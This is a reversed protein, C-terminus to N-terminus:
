AVDASDLGIGVAEEVFSYFALDHDLLDVVSPIRALTDALAAASKFTRSEGYEFHKLGLIDRLISGFEVCRPVTSVLDFRSLNELAFTVHSRQVREHMPAGFMKTLPNSMAEKAEPSLMRFQRRLLKGDELDVGRAFDAIAELGKISQDFPTPSQALDVARCLLLREALENFPNNILTATKFDMVHLPDAYRLLNVRGSLLVSRGSHHIMNNITDFSHSELFHHHIAFNRSLQSLMAMQPVASPQFFFLKESNHQDERFRSYIRLRTEACHIQLSLAGEIGAFQEEAVVFGVLGTQHMGLDAFHEMRVTATLKVPERGEASVEITPTVSPNDPCLWLHVADGTDMFVQYKM